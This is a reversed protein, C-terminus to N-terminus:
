GALFTELFTLSTPDNPGISPYTLFLSSPGSVFHGVINGWTTTHRIKCGRAKGRGGPEGSNGRVREMFHQANTNPIFLIKKAIVCKKEYTNYKGPPM